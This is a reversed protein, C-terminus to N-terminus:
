LTQAFMNPNCNCSFKSIIANKFADFDVKEIDTLLIVKCDEGSCYIDPTDNYETTIFERLKLYIDNHKM